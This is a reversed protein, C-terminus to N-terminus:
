PRVVENYWFMVGLDRRLEKVTYGDYWKKIKSM